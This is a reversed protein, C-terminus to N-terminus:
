RLGDRLERVLLEVTGRTGGALKLKWEGETEFRRDRLREAWPKIAERIAHLEFPDRKLERARAMVDPAVRIFARLAAGTKISYKRGAWATPFTSSIAKVYNLFFRKAGHRLEQIKAGGGIKEVTELLDVIEEALPAQSVRGRGTGLMKVEGHLPSTEDENLSRIVDHALAQNPDPYLKRGSLSIIHSPNLRTHKANITVFLEVIQRADLTDFLVAPVEIGMQEGAQNLAHLALLRHQGDLVRLVGHEEPIQLLGIDHHGTIPTFTFRKESTIIVAGPIPPLTGADKCERYYAVLEDIKRRIVPRQYAAESESIRKELADWNVRARVKARSKPTEDKPGGSYGLVEFKVLRDIDKASLGAQYFEVGFQKIRRAPVTIM